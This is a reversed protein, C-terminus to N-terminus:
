GIDYYDYYEDYLGVCADMGENTGLAKELVTQWSGYEEYLADASPGMEDGYAELNSQKATALGEPDDAYAELRLENRRQSVARAIEEVNRAEGLMDEIMRYLESLSDHYAQRNERAMAVQEPDTWDIIDVYISLRPSDPSPSFGYVADPNVVIDKMAEPNDRPDHEYTFGSTEGAQQISDVVTEYARRVEDAGHQGANVLTDWANQVDEGAQDLWAEVAPRNKEILEQTRAGIDEAWESLGSEDVWASLDDLAGQAWGSIGSEDAWTAVSDLTDEVWETVGSDDVWDSVAQGADGAMGLLSDWTKGLNTLFEDVHSGESAPEALGTLLASALTLAICLSLIRNKM